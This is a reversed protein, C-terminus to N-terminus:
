ASEGDGQFGPEHGDGMSMAFRVYLTRGAKTCKLTQLRGFRSTFDFANRLISSSAASSVWLKALAASEIVPGQTMADQTLVTRIGGQM